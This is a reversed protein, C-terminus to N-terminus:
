EDVIQAIRQLFLEPTPKGEPFLRARTEAGKPNNWTADISQQIEALFEEQSVGNAKAALKVGKKINVSM